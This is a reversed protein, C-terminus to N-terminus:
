SNEQGEKVKKIMDSKRFEHGCMGCIYKFGYINPNEMIVNDRDIVERIRNRDNNLCKPCQRRIGKKIEEIIVKIVQAKEPIPKHVKETKTTEAALEREEQYQKLYKFFLESLLEDVTEGAELQESLSLEIEKLATLDEYDLFYVQNFKLDSYNTSSSKFNVLIYHSYERILHPLNMKIEKLNDIKFEGGYKSVLSKIDALNKLMESNTKLEAVKQKSELLGYVLFPAEQNTKQIFIDIMEALKIYNRDINEDILFFFIGGIVGIFLGKDIEQIKRGSENVVEKWSFATKWKIVDFRRAKYVLSFSWFFTETSLHHITGKPFLKAQKDIDEIQEEILKNM